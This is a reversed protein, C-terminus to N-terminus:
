RGGPCGRAGRGPRVASVNLRAGHGAPGRRLLTCRDLPSPHRSHRGRASEGRGPRDDARRERTVPDSPAPKASCRREGCREDARRSVPPRRHEGPPLEVRAPAAPRPMRVPQGWDLGTAPSIGARESGGGLWAPRRSRTTPFALGATWVRGNPAGARCGDEGRDGQDAPALPPSCHVGYWRAAHDSANVLPGDAGPARRRREGGLVRPTSKTAMTPTGLGASTVAGAGDPRRVRTPSSDSVM